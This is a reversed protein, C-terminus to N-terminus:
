RKIYTNNAIRMKIYKITIIIIDYFFNFCFFGMELLFCPHISYEIFLFVVAANTATVAVAAAVLSSPFFLYFMFSCYFDNAKEGFFINILIVCNPIKRMFSNIIIFFSCYYAKSNVRM